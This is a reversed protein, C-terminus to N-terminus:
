ATTTLDVIAAFSATNVVVCDDWSNLVFRVDGYAALTYPDVVIDVGGWHGIYLDEWNGFIMASCVGSSTGKTLNSPVLNTWDIPYGNLKSFDGDLLFRATNSAREITKLDGVVKANTLYGLKGRNANGANVKTELAVVKAWTAPGGNTGIAVINPTNTVAALATLIGTPQNSSGSGNICAAELLEAHATLIKDMIINEVDISTQKLLDKSFAGVVANRHPTLSVRAFAAKSVSAQAGEALWSASISGASVVPVTGVLDGLVTAGLQAVVLKNKLGDVYRPAAEEKAYGGDANTSYNQGASSRLVASPLVVGRQNLGLRKYEEAGMQAVDAEIGTLSKGEPDDALERIFKALSFARGAQKELDALQRDALRQQAAEVKTAQDLEKTLEVAKEVAADYAAEDAKKDMGQIKKVQASLDKRIEAITRM